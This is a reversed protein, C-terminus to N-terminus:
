RTPSTEVSEKEVADEPMKEVQRHYWSALPEASLGHLLVSLGIVFATTHLLRDAAALESRNLVILVYIVSAIGRPGFWGLLAITQWRLREGVLSVAVALVRVVFLSLLAFVVIQWSLNRLGEPLMVAGVIIFTLMILLKGEVDAFNSLRRRVEKATTGITLGAGFAALFGNGGLVQAAGFAFIALGLATLRLFSESSWGRDNARQIIQGGVYGVVVGVLPGLIVQSALFAPFSSSATAEVEAGALTLFLILLPLTIGDNLGSEVNLIERVREPVRESNIVAQALTADTPTIIVALVAAQWVTLETFLLLALGTGFAATLLLGATLLRLALDRENRLLTFDIRSADAFLVLVLTLEALAFLAEDELSITLLGFGMEGILLGFAIYVMPATIWSKELRASVAGYVVLFGAIAALLVYHM